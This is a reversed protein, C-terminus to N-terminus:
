QPRRDGRQQRDKIELFWGEEGNLSAQAESLLRRAEERERRIRDIQRDLDEEVKKCNFLNRLMKIIAKM